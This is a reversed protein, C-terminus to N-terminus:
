ITLPVMKTFRKYVFAKIFFSCVGQVSKRVNNVGYFRKYFSIERVLVKDAIYWLTKANM